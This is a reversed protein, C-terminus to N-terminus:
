RGEAERGARHIQPLKPRRLRTWQRLDRAVQHLLGALRRRRCAHLQVQHTTCVVKVHQSHLRIEIPEYGVQEEVCNLVRRRTSFHNQSHPSLSAMPQQLYLVATNADGRRILSADEITEKATIWTAGTTLAAGAKSERDHRGNHAAM